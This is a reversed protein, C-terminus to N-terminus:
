HVVVLRIRCNPNRRLAKRAKRQEREGLYGNNDAIEDFNLRLTRCMERIVSRSTTSNPMPNSRVGKFELIVKSRKMGTERRCLSQWEGILRHDQAPDFRWAQTYALMKGQNKITNTNVM